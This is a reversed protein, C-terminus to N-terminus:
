LEYVMVLENGDDDKCKRVFGVGRYLKEAISDGKIYCLKIHSYKDENQIGSIWMKLAKKGYGRGQYSKDIMMQDLVCAIGEESVYDRQM